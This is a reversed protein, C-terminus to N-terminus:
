LAFLKSSIAAAVLRQLLKRVVLGNSCLRLFQGDIPHFTVISAMKKRPPAFLPSEIELGARIVQEFLALVYCYRALLKEKDGRLRRRVPKIEAVAKLFTKSSVKQSRDACFLGAEYKEM